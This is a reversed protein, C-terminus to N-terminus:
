LPPTVVVEATCRYQCTAAGRRRTCAIMPSTDGCMTLETMVVSKSMPASGGSLSNILDPSTCFILWTAYCSYIYLLLM